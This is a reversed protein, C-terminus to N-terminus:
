LFFHLNGNSSLQRSSIEVNRSSKFTLTLVIAGIMAVLLILGVILFCILFNNYLAQGFYDINSLNEISFNLYYQSSIFNFDLNFFIPDLLLTLQLFFILGILFLSFNKNFNNVPYIKVNLMMVVFLFLVAIAGVYIIIFLVGLFQVAFLFLICSANCFSLILFLVSYVPNQSIFVFFSSLLLLFILTIHLNIM